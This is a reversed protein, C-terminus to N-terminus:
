MQKIWIVRPWGRGNRQLLVQQRVTAVGYQVQVEALFFRSGVELSADTTQPRQAPFRDILEIFNNLHKNNRASVLAAADNHHDLVATIVTLPATNLNIGTYEPLATIFPRLRNIITPNFGRVAYLENIDGLSRNACRYPPDQQLYTQDEAGGPYTVVSDDDLWDVLADALDLPLQLQSLLRQFRLVNPPNVKGSPALNNLNFLAQQDILRGNIIAGDAKELPVVQAWNEGLHDPAGIDEAIITRGWDVAARALALAQNRDKLNELQQIRVQNQVVLFTAVSAVLAVVLIATILAVGQQSSSFKMARVTAM